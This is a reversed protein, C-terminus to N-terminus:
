KESCVICVPKQETSRFDGLVTFDESKGKKGENSKGKEGEDSESEIPLTAETEALDGEQAVNNEITKDVSIVEDVSDVIEHSSDHSKTRKKAKKSVKEVHVNESSLSSKRKNKNETKSTLDLEEITLQDKNSTVNSDTKLKEIKRQKAQEHLKELISKNEKKDTEDEEGLYRFNFIFLYIFTICSFSEFSPDNFSIKNVM